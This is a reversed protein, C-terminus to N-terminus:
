DPTRATISASVLFDSPDCDDHWESLMEASDDVPSVDIDVFGADALLTRVRAAANAAVDAGCCSDADSAIRAYRERVARRQTAADLGTERECCDDTSGM